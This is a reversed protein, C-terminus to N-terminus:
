RACPLSARAHAQAFCHIVATSAGSIEWTSTESDSSTTLAGDEGFTLSM